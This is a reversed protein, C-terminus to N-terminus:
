HIKFFTIKNFNKINFNEECIFQNVDPFFNKILAILKKQITLDNKTLMSSDKKDKLFKKKKISSDITKKVQTYFNQM